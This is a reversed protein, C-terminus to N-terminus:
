STKRRKSQPTADAKAKAQSKAEAKASGKAKAKAQGGGCTKAKGKGKAKSKAKGKAKARPRGVGLVMLAQMVPDPFGFPNDFDDDSGGFEDSSGGVGFEDSCGFEDSVGGCDDAEDGEDNSDAAGEREPSSRAVDGLDELKPPSAAALLTQRAEFSPVNVFISAHVYFSIDSAENGFYGEANWETDGAHARGAKDMDFVWCVGLQDFSEVHAVANFHREISDDSMRRPVRRSTPFKELRFFGHDDYSYDHGM